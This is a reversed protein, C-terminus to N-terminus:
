PERSYEKQEGWPAGVEENVCRKLAAREDNHRYVSRALEVFRGGFDGHQECRRLADEVEWLAENVAKLEAELRALEKSGEVAKDWALRLTALEVRVQRVKHPDAIRQAKIELITLKDLVEGASMEVRVLGRRRVGRVRQRAAEAV